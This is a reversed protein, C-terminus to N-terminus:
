GEESSTKKTIKVKMLARRKVGSERREMTVYKSVEDSKSDSDKIPASTIVLSEQFVGQIKQHKKRQTQVDNEVM